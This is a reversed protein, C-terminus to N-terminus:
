AIQGSKDIRVDDFVLIKEGDLSLEDAARVILPGYLGKELQETENAHPHYWFTGADPPTFRYTFTEGPQVPRQVVETGDMAAPIRLGHWHIVTPKPLRNTFEIDLPVGQKAELVPGPVQGNFGYGRVKRGPAIEWDVESAELHYRVVSGGASSMMHRIQSVANAGRFAHLSARESPSADHQLLSMPRPGKKLSFSIHHLKLLAAGPAM